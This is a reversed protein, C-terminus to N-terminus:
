QSAADSGQAGEAISFQADGDGFRSPVVGIDRLYETTQHPSYLAEATNKYTNIDMTTVSSKM